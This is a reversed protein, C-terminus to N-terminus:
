CQEVGACVACPVARCLAACCLVIIFVLCSWLLHLTLVQVKGADSRFLLCACGWVHTLVV